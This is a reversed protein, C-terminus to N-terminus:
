EDKRFRVALYSGFGYGVVWCVAPLRGPLAESFGALMATAWAMSLVGSREAQRQAIALVWRACIWETASGAAFAILCSEVM